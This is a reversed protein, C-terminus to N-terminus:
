RASGSSDKQTLSPSRETLQSMLTATGVASCSSTGMATRLHRVVGCSVGIMNPGSATEAIGVAVAAAAEADPGATWRFSARARVKCLRWGAGVAAM